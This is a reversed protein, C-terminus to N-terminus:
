AAVEDEFVRVVAFGMDTLGALTQSPFTKTNLLNAFKHALANAPYVLTKGYVSKHFVQIEPPMAREM